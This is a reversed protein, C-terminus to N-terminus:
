LALWISNCQIQRHGALVIMRVFLPVIMLLVPPGAVGVTDDIGCDHGGRAAQPRERPRESAEQGRPQQLEGHDRQGPADRKESIGDM